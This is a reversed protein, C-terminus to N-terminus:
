LKREETDKIFRILEHFYTEQDDWMSLHSGNECISVRAHPILKGMKRIDAVRM